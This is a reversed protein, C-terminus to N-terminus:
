KETVIKIITDVKTDLRTVTQRVEELRTRGVELKAETQRRDEDLRDVRAALESQRHAVRYFGTGGLGFAALVTAVLGAEPAGPNM